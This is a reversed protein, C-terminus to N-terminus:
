MQFMNRCRSCAKVDEEIEPINGCGNGFVTSVM